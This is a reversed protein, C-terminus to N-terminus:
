RRGEVSRATCTLLWASGRSNRDSGKGVCGSRATVALYSPCVLVLGDWYRLATCVVREESRWGM